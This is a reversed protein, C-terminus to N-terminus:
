HVPPIDPTLTLSTTATKGGTMATITVVNLVSGSGATFTVTGVGGATTVSGASLMGGTTASISVSTNVPQHLFNYATVTIAATDQGNATISAPSVTVDLYEVTEANIARTLITTTRNGMSDSAAINIITDASSLMITANFSGDAEVRYRVNNINLEAGPETQGIVHCVITEGSAMCAGSTTDFSVSPQTVILLPPMTDKIVTRTISQSTQGLTAAFTLPNEGELLSVTINFAGSQPDVSVSTGNLTLESGPATKGTISISDERTTFRDSPSTIELGGTGIGPRYKIVRTKTTVKNNKNAADIKIHNVGEILDVQATFAGSSDATAPQGNVTVTNGPDTRGKIVVPSQSTELSGVPQTIDLTVGAADQLEEFAQEEESTMQSAAEPEEGKRVTTKQKAGLMVEGGSTGKVSVAGERCEVTTTEDADVGVGLETGRVGAIATPTKIEFQSGKGSMKKAKGYVKGSAMNLSTTEADAAPNKELKDIAVNTFEKLKMTNGQSWEITCSSKSGTKIKDGSQLLGGVAATKWEGAGGKQVQVDGTIASIKAVGKIQKAARAPGTAALSLFLCLVVVAFSRNVSLGNM